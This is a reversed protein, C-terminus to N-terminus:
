KLVIITKGEIRFHVKQTKELKGLLESVNKKRSVTALFDLDSVDTQYIVNVDYFREVEEMIEKINAGGGSFQFLGNKWAMVADMDVEKIVRINNAVRAQEGPKILKSQNGSHIKVSGQLLSISAENRYANFNFFTGLVEVETDAGEKKVKFPMSSNHAIEFYAEGTIEVKREKGVFTSPYVIKSEANLWIQSGDALNLKYPLSGRPVIITNMTVENSSGSYNISGDAAKRVDISNQKVISGVGASDLNIKKGDIILTAHANTPAIIDTNVPPVVAVPDKTTHRKTTIFYIAVGTILLLVVAAAIKRWLRFSHVPTKTETDIADKIKKWSNERSRQYIELEAQLKEPDTLQDLFAANSPDELWHDLAAQEDPSLPIGSIHNHILRGIFSHQQGPM